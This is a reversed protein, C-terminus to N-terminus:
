LHMVGRMHHLLNGVIFQVDAQDLAVALLRVDLHLGPDLIFQHHEACRLMGQGFAAFGAQLFQGPFGPDKAFLARTGAQGEVLRHAMVRARQIDAQLQFM